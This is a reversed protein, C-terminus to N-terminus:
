PQPGLAKPNRSEPNRASPKPPKVQARTKPTPSDIEPPARVPMRVQVPSSAGRFALYYIVLGLLVLLLAGGVAIGVIAGIADRGCLTGLKPDDCGPPPAPPSPPLGAPEGM